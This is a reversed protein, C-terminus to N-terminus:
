DLSGGQKTLSTNNLTASFVFNDDGENAGGGIKGTLAISVLNNSNDQKLTGKLDVYAIGSVPTEEVTSEFDGLGVLLAKESKSKQSETFIGAIERICITTGDTGSFLLYCNGSTTLVDGETFLSVTGEYAQNSTFFKQTGSDTEQSTSKVSFSFAGTWTEFALAFSALTLIGSVLSVGVILGWFSLRRKM